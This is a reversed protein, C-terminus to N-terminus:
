NNFCLQFLKKNSEDAFILELDDKKFQVRYRQKKKIELVGLSIM